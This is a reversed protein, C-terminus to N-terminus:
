FLYIYYLLHIQLKENQWTLFIHENHKLYIKSSASEPPVIIM